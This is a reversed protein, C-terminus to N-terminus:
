FEKDIIERHAVPSWQRDYGVIQDSKIAGKWAKANVLTNTWILVKDSNMISGRDMAHLKGKREVVAFKLSLSHDIINKGM